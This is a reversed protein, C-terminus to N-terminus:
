PKRVILSASVAVLSKAVFIRRLMLLPFDEIDGEAFASADQPKVLVSTGLTDEIFSHVQNAQTLYVLEEGMAINTNWLEQIMANDDMVRELIDEQAQFDGAFLADIYRALLIEKETNM